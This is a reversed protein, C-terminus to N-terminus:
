VFVSINQHPNRQMRAAPLGGSVQRFMTQECLDKQPAIKMALFHDIMNVIVRVM